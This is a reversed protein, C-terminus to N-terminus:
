RRVSLEGREVAAMDGAQRQLTAELARARVAEAGSDEDHLAVFLGPSGRGRQVWTAHWGALQSRLAQLDVQGAWGQDGLVLHAFSLLGGPGRARLLADVEAFAVEVGGDDDVQVSLVPVVVADDGAVGISLRG